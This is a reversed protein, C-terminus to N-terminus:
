CGLLCAFPQETRPRLTAATAARTAALPESAVPTSHCHDAHVDRKGVAGLELKGVAGGAGVGGGRDAGAERAGREGHALVALQAVERPREDRPWGSSIM